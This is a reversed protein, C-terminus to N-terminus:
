SVNGTEGISRKAAADIAGSWAELAVRMAELQRSRDYHRGFVGRPIHGAIREAVGSHGMEALGSLCTRRLDHASAHAIGLHACCRTFARSLSEPHLHPARGAGAASAFVFTAGKPAVARLRRLDAAAATPLPLTRLGAKTKSRTVTVTPPQADLDVARWELASVELARFGLRLTLMIAVSTEADAPLPSAEANLGSALKGIENSRPDPGVLVAGDFLIREGPSEKVPRALGDTPDSGAYIGWGRATKFMRRTAALLKNANTGDSRGERKLRAAYDSVAKGIDVPALDSLLRGGLAPTLIGRLLDAEIKHTKPAVASERRELYEEVLERLTRLNAVGSRARRAELAPDRGERAVSKMEVLKRRADALSMAPFSGIRIRRPNGEGQRRIRAQFTKAGSTELCVALGEGLPIWEREGPAAINSLYAQLGKDTKPLKREESAM